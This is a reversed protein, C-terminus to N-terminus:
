ACGKSIHCAVLLAEGEVESSLTFAWLSLKGYCFHVNTVNEYRILLRKFKANFVDTFNVAVPLEDWIFCWESRLEAEALCLAGQAYLLM